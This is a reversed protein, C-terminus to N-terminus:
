PKPLSQAETLHSRLTPLTQKAWNRIDPDDGYSAEKEFAAIDKEHDEVTARGFERDFDAGKKSALPMSYAMKADDPPLMVGKRKALAALERNGKTHDNILHQSLVKVDEGQGKQLGLQGMQVEMM